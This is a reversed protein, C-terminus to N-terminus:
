SLNLLLYFRKQVWWVGHANTTRETQLCPEPEFVGSGEFQPRTYMGPIIEDVAKKVEAGHGSNYDHGALLCGEKMKRYWLLIDAKTSEYRHSADVFVFDFHGNPYECSANLSDLPLFTVFDNIKARNIHNLITQMQKYGGYDLNDVLVLEFANKGQNLLAEALYIASVGDGIGVEAIRCNIPLSDAMRSYFAGFDFMGKGGMTVWYERAVSLPTSPTPHSEKSPDDGAAGGTTKEM